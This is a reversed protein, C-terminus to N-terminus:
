RITTAHAKTSYCSCWRLAVQKYPETLRLHRDIVLKPRRRIISVITCGTLDCEHNVPYGYDLLIEVSRIHEATVARMNCHFIHNIARPDYDGGSLRVDAGSDLLLRIAQANACRAAEHLPTRNECNRLEIDASNELLFKIAEPKRCRIAIHLAGDGQDDPELANISVGFALAHKLLPIDGTRAAHFFKEHAFSQAPPLYDDMQMQEDDMQEDNM